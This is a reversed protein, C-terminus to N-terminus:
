RPWPASSSARRRAGRLARDALARRRGREPARRPAAPPASPSTSSRAPASRATPSGSRSSPPSRECRRAASARSMARRGPRQRRREGRPRRRAEATGRPDADERNRAPDARDRRDRAGHLRVDGRAAGRPVPRRAPRRAGRTARRNRRRGRDLDGATTWLATQAESLTSPDLPEARRARLHDIALNRTISLLWTSVRARRPDYTAAHRWARAFAEQSLEEAVAPDGVMTAALGYVRAQFRRVFATALRADGAALGAVLAEDSPPWMRYRRDPPRDLNRRRCDRSAARGYSYTFRDLAM